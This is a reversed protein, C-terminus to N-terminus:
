FVTAEALGTRRGGSGNRELEFWVNAGRWNLGSTGLIERTKMQIHCVASLKEIVLKIRFSSGYNILNSVHFLVEIM